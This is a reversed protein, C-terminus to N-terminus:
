AFRGRPGRKPSRGTKSGRRTFTNGWRSMIAGGTTTSSGGAMSSWSTYGALDEMASVRAMVSRSRARKRLDAVTTGVTRAVSAPDIWDYEALVDAPVDLHYSEVEAKRFPVDFDDDDPAEWVHLHVGYKDRYVVGSGYDPNVDGITGIVRAPTVKYSYGGPNPVRRKSAPRRSAKRRTSKRKTPM